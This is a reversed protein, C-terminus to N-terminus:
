RSLGGGQLYFSCGQVVNDSGLRQQRAQEGVGQCSAVDLVGADNGCSATAKRWERRWTRSVRWSELNRRKRVPINDSSSFSLFWIISWQTFKLTLPFLFKSFSQTFNHLGPPDTCPSGAFKVLSTRPQISALNHLYMSMHFSEGLDVCRVGKCRERIEINIDFHQSM